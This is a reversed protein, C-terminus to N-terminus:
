SDHSLVPSVPKGTVADWVRAQGYGGATVIRGNRRSFTVLFAPRSGDLRCLLKGTAAEWVVADGDSSATVIFTGDPSFCANPVGTGRDVPLRVLAKGTAADWLGAGGEHTGPPTYRYCAMLVRKGDPSFTVRARQCSQCAHLMPPTVPEGTATQRVLAE